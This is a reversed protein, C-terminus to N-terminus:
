NKRGFELERLIDNIDRALNSNAEKYSNIEMELKLIKDKYTNCETIIEKLHLEKVKNLIVSNEFKNNVNWQNCQIFKFKVQNINTDNLSPISKNITNLLSKTDVKIGSSVSDISSDILNDSESIPFIDINNYILSILIILLIMFLIYIYIYISPLIDKLVNIYTCYQKYVKYLSKDNIVFVGIRKSYANPSLIVKNLRNIRINDKLKVSDYVVNVSPNYISSYIESLSAHLIKRGKFPLIVRKNNKNEKM